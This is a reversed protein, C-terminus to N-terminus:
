YLEGNGCAVGTSDPYALNYTDAGGVELGLQTVLPATAGALSSAIADVASNLLSLPLGIGLVSPTLTVSLTPNLSPQSLSNAPPGGLDRVGTTPSDFPGTFTFTQAPSPQSLATSASGALTVLGLSLANVSVLPTNPDPSVTTQSVLPTGVLAYSTNAQTSITVPQGSACSISTIRATAGALDFTMPVTFTVNATTLGIALNATVTATTEVAFQATRASTNVPGYASQPAQIAAVSTTVGVLQPNTLGLAALQPLLTTTPNPINVSLNPATAFRQGNAIEAGGTVLDLVNLSADAASSAGPTAVGLLQGLTINAPFTGTVQASFSQLVTLAAAAGPDSPNANLSSITASLLQPYTISDTLAASPSGVGLATALQGLTVYGSALGNYGVAQISSNGVLPGLFGGLLSNSPNVAALYSGVRVGTGSPLATWTATASSAATSGFVRTFNGSVHVQVATAAAQDTDGPCPSSDATFTEAGGVVSTTGLSVALANGSATPAFNNRSASQDALTLAQSCTNAGQGLAFRADMAAADAVSQLNRKTFSLNGVDVSVAAAALLAALAFATVVLVSGREDRARSRSLRGVM